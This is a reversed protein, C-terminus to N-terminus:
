PAELYREVFERPSLIRGPFHNSELLAVEGTVLVSDPNAELLDWLAQDRRDPCDLGARPPADVVADALLDDLLAAVERPGFGHRQVLEPKRLVRDWEARLVPSILFTHNSGEIGFAARYPLSEARMDTAAAIVNSDVIVLM